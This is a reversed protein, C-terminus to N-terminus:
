RVAGSDRCQTCICHFSVLSVSNVRGAALDVIKIHIFEKVEISAKVITWVLSQSAYSSDIVISVSKTINYQDETIELSLDIPSSPLTDQSFSFRSDDDEKRKNITLSLIDEDEDNTAKDM